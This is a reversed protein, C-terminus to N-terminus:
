SNTPDTLGQVIREIQRRHIRQHLGLLCHWEFRGLPGFWPHPYRSGAGRPTPTAQAEFAAVRDLLVVFRQRVDEASARGQPKVDEIRVIEDPTQGRELLDLTQLISDGVINLHEVTEAISWNRSSDEIGPFRAILVRQRLRDHDAEDWLRLVQQGETQFLRAAAAWDLRRCSWPFVVYRALWAEWWPLGQGPAQLRPAPRDSPLTTM